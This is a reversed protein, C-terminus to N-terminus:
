FLIIQISKFLQPSKYIASIHMLSLSTSTNMSFKLPIPHSPHHKLSYTWLPYSQLLLPNSFVNRNFLAETLYFNDNRSKKLFIM